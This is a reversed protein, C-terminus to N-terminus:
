TLDTAESAISTNFSTNDGFGSPALKSAQSPSSGTRSLLSGTQNLLSGVRQRNQVARQQKAATFQDGDLVGTGGIVGAM